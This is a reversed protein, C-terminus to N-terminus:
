TRVRVRAGVWGRGGHIGRRAQVAASEQRVGEGDGVQGRGLRRVKM